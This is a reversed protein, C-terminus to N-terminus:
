LLPPRRYTFPIGSEASEVRLAWVFSGSVALGFAVFGAWFARSPGRRRFLRFAGVQLVPGILALGCLLVENYAFIGRGVSLNLAVVAILAALKSVTLRFLKVPETGQITNPGQVLRM